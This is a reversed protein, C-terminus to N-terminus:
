FVSRSRSIRSNTPKTRPPSPPARSTSRRPMSTPGEVSNGLNRPARVREKGEGSTMLTSSEGKQFASLVARDGDVEFPVPWLTAPLGSPPSARRRARCCRFIRMTPRSREVSYSLAIFCPAGCATSTSSRQCRKFFRRWPVYCMRSLLCVVSEFIMSASWASTSPLATRM